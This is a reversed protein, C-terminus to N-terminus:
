VMVYLPAMGVHQKGVRQSVLCFDSSAFFSLYKILGHRSGQLWFWSLDVIVDGDVCHDTAHWGIINAVSSLGLLVSAAHLSRVVYGISGWVKFRWPMLQLSNLMAEITMMRAKFLSLSLHPLPIDGWNVVSPLKQQARM